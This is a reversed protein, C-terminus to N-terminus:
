KTPKPKNKMRQERRQRLSDQRMAARERHTQTQLAPEEGGTSLHKALASVTPYQFLDVVPIDRGLTDTLRSKVQLLLLSHGGLDFFNDDRGVRGTGLLEKWVSSIVAELETEPATYTVSLPEAFAASPDPLKRRDVKGNPTLPMRELRVFAGPVMFSPLKEKAYARLQQADPIGEAGDQPAPVYYAALRKEGSPSPVALVAAERVQPHKMLVSQIEGLEVRMGRIKIQDDLRGAISLLGDPRYVGFDGTYYVIDDPSGTWPNVAFRSAGETEGLYGLSRFPTRIVIEGPEGIGCLGGAANVVLAQTQPLPSGVPQVSPLEEASPVVHCCKALTTETPGYLNVIQTGEHFASRWAQVLAGTLPEGAFFVYRLEALRIGHSEGASVTQGRVPPQGPVKPMSGLWSQALAPVTHLFTIREQDMWPLLRSASLDAEDEPLCVAAGSTLPLFVDRLVVDFSWGTLQAGRDGPGIGFRERQWVLFHSLGRHRGLVGKPVGTTGSTFFIYAPDDPEPSGNARHGQPYERTGISEAEAAPLLSGTREDALVLDGWAGGTLLAEDAQRRPGVYLLRKAGSVALMAEQRERPLSRDVPMLVGGAALVALAGAILGPSRPGALAVAEGRALGGAMLRDALANVAENLERYTLMGGRHVVAESGPYRSAATHFMQPVSPYFPEELKAAPQPLLAAGASTVLSYAGAARTSDAALQELLGAYQGAFETMRAGSFLEKQYVFELELGEAREHIYLTLAFKSEPEGLELAEVKLGPFDAEELPTNVHNIMVDFIPNRNLSREPQLLEVLKEFPMDQHAYADLCVKRVRRLLETFAPGGSLDVRLALTGVFCGILRETETRSRGAVPTGVIVDEQRCLRGLLISFASLLVMFLTAGERRGLEQLKQMTIAPVKVATRGGHFSMRQPRPHDAPLELVPLEGGLQRMWYATLEEMARGALKGNQWAAYDPYQVTLEPLDAPLGQVACRYLEGLERVIVGVSWGDSVMHHMTLLLVHEAPSTRLLVTRLLPGSHLDFPRKAEELALREVEKERDAGDLGQLDILALVPEAQELIHQVPRGDEERIVTRLAEHRQVLRQLCGALVQADLPGSMRVASYIHYAASGPQLRDLFWLRQQAFSLPLAATRPMRPIEDGLTAASGSAEYHSGDTLVSDLVAALGAATPHEFLSRLPLGIKMESRIRSLVQTALLSHGGLDFFSDYIGVRQVQLVEEWIRVLVEETRSRPATYSRGQLGRVEPAPLAKRDVKGNPSLPLRELVVFAQPVMYQPLRRGLAERWSAALEAGAVVEGAPVVYAALQRDGPRDERAMVFADSVGECERLAAEIEGPEIRYGRIKVQHDIRGLYEVTGDPLYRALDGTRYLVPTREDGYPNAVFKEATMGADGIYGGGVQVGAICLEGPTGAPVMGLEGNLIYLRTNPVPRGIPVPRGALAKRDTLRCFVTVDTCETPGYTNVVEARCAPSGTWDALKDAAIPEGGLFVHRLSALAEYGDPATEELLPYFASPTGNLLTIGHEKVLGTVERADYPGPPLLVLQGGTMLPAYINKQTLDFSPSTILLVRDAETMGFERTYWQMLNAFGKRYVGAGKPMGTSGSTFIVYMLHDPGAASKPNEDPYLEIEAQEDLCIVPLEPQKPLGGALASKTVLAKLGARGTMYALREKPLAPDLPVYAGGAKLVALLGAALEPSRDLCVGVLTDPGVGLAQLRHALRNAMRNLEGYSVTQGDYVLATREPSRAAWAEFQEHIGLEALEAETRNWEEAQQRIEPETLMPLRGIREDPNAAAGELLRIFYTWMREATEEKFLDTSYELTGNLGREDESLTLTLDFKTTGNDVEFASLRLGELELEPLPANQLVLMAQFLPTRSMDRDPQLLEVLKEFPMDQHAYADLCLQKVRQLLQRFAPGGALDVRLALTNVFCGILRETETRTRGAIPSGVILEEQRGLRGLLVSFVTLLAMYLTVGEQRCLEQLRGALAAPVRVGIRGGRFSQRAPRPYDTPLELVPLEGGLQRKWYATLGELAEGELKANQWVAYDPYQVKLEPLAAPMGRKAARYLEGLERVLVGVSWGDSIIHHMTVLLVHESAGIRLMRTRLLPGNELDFPRVAEELALREVEAERRDGEVEQLDLVPLPLDVSALIVQVPRGNEERYITRLTEHREALRQLCGALVEADLEGTMRVASHIHYAASEPELRDLFWLRQQAFSLPIGEERSRFPIPEDGAIGEWERGGELGEAGLEEWLSLIASAMGAATPHEFLTRLSFAPRVASESETLLAHRMRSVAQTALLSHGGRDFFNDHIGIKELGLVEAWIGAIAAELETRPATYVRERGSDGAPAPLAKRDVKGNPSLPLRELVVFAQPVMYQPLRRGLAERWSAALEAEAAVEGAPVVYAALQRDGPRDERAMVFADGVGECERLAAEIEGPEIRYGRIKVQHDIRGLYEVTGDPLYRALDGTRYLVPTREDGYPNAVFKEATMGADGIYGGGVQVGAICLEGPTGAPVMGLEGNLIYLRTNPVPRGIPVPRGALAKRDTLRCFVTVDTCETPGYTNVVEARSAPSGTWDALKDAAIPEGGLFVHRLSALAEYGDPATEELLPYFASPTGNLLTIGHEKVLGTVERADYPGSPLLVLQGGTMLPAYINKQTLDFSPSTILLVRDAETMGFERTYWQMLNAFGKRYVGAGKPLGTSGSTFIVYMLHDPGAASKPNEDPYLRPEAQEDLCIVPLEPQKPLGGALASKTVLAKLGARGSMYALREEPLAPDLPVYAGGAKLVALLGAALEPSRDLCVGVLTDPGVGLAQLRHALRNAMRNLEGYSVTQGNYVLATREPSRAAWAEFQEHVGLEALEAETRNWEEAQQRIEPETLMPLRGIREDPTAAAGELLQLFHAAMRGVAEETFLDTSYEFLGDFGQETETLELLLDFKATTRELPVLETQMGELEVSAPQPQLVFMTQFVPTVGLDRGPQVVEVVKDFPVDGHSYAEVAAAKVQRLLSRFSVKGDVQSRIVLNNVFFGILGEIEESDRGAAPTGVLLDEQGSYRYLWAKYAALLTMFGTAGEKRGLEKLKRGVEESVTFSFAAGGNGPKSLRPAATYLQLLPLEGALKEKWYALQEELTGGQLWDKQYHAYDAYQVPLEPLEDPEGRVFAGYLESLERILVGTSWGDSIIHHLTVLLLHDEEDLRLLRIRFLPGSSLDFAAQAEEQALRLARNWRIEGPIGTLDEVPLSWILKERIVQEITGDKERFTTRMTEHRDIIRRFARELAEQKMEGRLRLAAPIHYVSPDQLLQDILWLRQQAFSAGFAYVAGEFATDAAEATTNQTVYNM